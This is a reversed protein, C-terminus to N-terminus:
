KKKRRPIGLEHETMIIFDWNKKRCYAKAAEWKASNRGWEKVEYLYSKRPKGDKRMKKEPPRTQISPKVEIMIVKPSTHKKVLVDPFYRHMKNDLPSLYPVSLEESAWWEVEPHKDLHMFLKLEWSSRYVINKANGKYKRPNKPVFIGQKTKM